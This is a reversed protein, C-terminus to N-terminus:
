KYWHPFSAKVRVGHVTLAMGKKIAHDVKDIRAIALAKKGVVVGLTGIEIDDTLIPSGSPPLDDTGTIIMARKRIINRHQIRSVVEQGIYCGKTLSIGNLLDMLADHPFITSPLFDTNPDVIGHNIRLEHYTKIDSAIKENHGWTRHLLVDAISFREDIFSSNSFTHEQNWSLVVGNIPQIEIIVNSRLKYFLLKDILSDRKSRDIELIFTDEEIKSILFYLLIKGQPTLIASGRAIKYPLTLVDATIIAQLFPIASKGCVKIFSQNSLYVSSM